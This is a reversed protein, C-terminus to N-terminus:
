GMQNRDPVWEDGNDIPQGVNRQAMLQEVARAQEFYNQRLPDGTKWAGKRAIVTAITGGIAFSLPAAWPGLFELLEPTIQSGLLGLFILAVTGLASASYGYKSVAEVKPSTEAPNDSAAM